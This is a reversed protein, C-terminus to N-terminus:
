FRPLKLRSAAWVLLFGLVGGPLLPEAIGQDLIGRRDQICHLDRSVTNLRIKQILTKRFLCHLLQQLLAYIKLTARGKIVGVRFGHM